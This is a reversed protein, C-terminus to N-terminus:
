VGGPLKEGAASRPSANTLKEFLLEYDDILREISLQSEAFRRAQIGMERKAAASLDHFKKISLALDEPSKWDFLFGTQGDQVLLPHDLVDSVLVPRGCALAECVANPLGEVYSPHVLAHHSHLLPVIDSRSDLWTWQQGLHLKSIQDELVSLYAQHEPPLHERRGVWTVQPWIALRERLIALAHILCMWNKIVWINGVALLRLPEGDPEVAPPHFTQLDVGNYITSIRNAIWAYHSAYYRRMHHSNVVLHDALRYLHEITSQWRNMRLFGASSRESIVVKPPHSLGLRALLSYVNATPMYSVVVDYNGARLRRRLDFIPRLSFRSPKFDQFIRVGAQRVDDALLDGPNFQFLDVHHGRRALGVGLVAIQRQAGGGKLSDIVLLIRM